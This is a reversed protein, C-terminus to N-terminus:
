KAKSHRFSFKKGLCLCLGLSLTLCAYDRSSGPESYCVAMGQAEQHGLGTFLWDLHLPHAHQSRRNVPM